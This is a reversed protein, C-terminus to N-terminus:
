KGAKQIAQYIVDQIRSRINMSSLKNATQDHVRNSLFIYVLNYQPDAWVCTGTFGTHGFTKPSALESPYHKSADPDWRDFGLGRRSVASQRSTFLDVTEPKFYQHGGYSGRNLYMQFLIALDNASAFLGAHGAVGGAMAAGQDHVYGQLLSNRFYTDNETPAIDDKNFRLLPKFGATQMGLPKYFQKLAYQDLPTHTIGEVVQQMFYMSLDSYVYKGRTTVKSHLMQPWMVDHFYNKRLFYHESVKTPYAASSDTSHDSATLYQYFPIYPTFGAQHLMVERVTIDQKDTNRTLAIYKKLTSDLSLKGSDTLQMVVPTTASVKTVSALDYLDTIKVPRVPSYTQYGYARNFIVSGDKVVMVVAGPTAHQQIAERAINDIKNLDAINIGLEEPVTYKLRIKQTDFGSGKTYRPSYTEALRGSAAIGGFIVQATVAASEPTNQPNWILPSQIADLKTLANAQGSFIIVAKRNKEVELIFRIIDKNNISADTLSIFLTNYLNLDDILGNISGASIYANGNISTVKQYKNLLSDFVTSYSNGFDVSAIHLGTLSTVPIFGSSNNLVVVNREAIREKALWSQNQQHSQSCAPSVICCIFLLLFVLKLSTSFIVTIFTVSKKM